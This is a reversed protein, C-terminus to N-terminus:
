AASEVAEGAADLLAPVLPAWYGCFIETALQGDCGTDLVTFAPAHTTAGSRVLGDAVVDYVPGFQHPTEGTLFAFAVKGRLASTQEWVRLAHATTGDLARDVARAAVIVVDADVEVDAALRIDQVACQGVLAQVFGDLLRTADGALDFEPSRVVAVRVMDAELM